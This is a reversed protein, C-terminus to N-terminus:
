GCEGNSCLTGFSKKEGGQYSELMMHKYKMSKLYDRALYYVEYIKPDPDYKELSSEIGNLWRLEHLKEWQGKSM